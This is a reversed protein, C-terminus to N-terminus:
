FITGDSGRCSSFGRSQSSDPLVKSCVNFISLEPKPSLEMARDFLTKPLIVVLAGCSLYVMSEVTMDVYDCARISRMMLLLSWVNLLAILEEHCVKPLQAAKRPELMLDKRM